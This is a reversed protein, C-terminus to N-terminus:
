RVAGDIPDVLFTDDDGPVADSRAIDEPGGAHHGRRGCFPQLGLSIRGTPHLDPFIQRDRTRGPDERNTVSSQGVTPLALRHGAKRWRGLLLAAVDGRDDPGVDVTARPGSRETVAM